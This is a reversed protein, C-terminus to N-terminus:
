AARAPPDVSLIRLRRVGKPVPWQIVSGARYGLLATGVPAVVSIAGPFSGAQHPFVLVYELTAGSDLDLLQVRSHMRVVDPPLEAPEVITARDLEEGLRVLNHRDATFPARDGEVLPWLKDADASSIFIADRASTTKASM